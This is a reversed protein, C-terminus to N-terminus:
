TEFLVTILYFQGAIIGPLITMLVANNQLQQQIVAPLIILLITMGLYTMLAAPRANFSFIDQLFSKVSLTMLRSLITLAFAYIGHIFANFYWYVLGQQLCIGATWSGYFLLAAWPAIHQNLTQWSTSPKTKRLHKM